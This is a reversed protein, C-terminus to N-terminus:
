LSNSAKNAETMESLDVSYKKIPHFKDGYQILMRETNAFDSTAANMIKKSYLGSLLINKAETRGLENKINRKTTDRKIKESYTGLKM